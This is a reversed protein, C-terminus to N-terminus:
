SALFHTNQIKSYIKKEEHIKIQTLKFSIFKESKKM